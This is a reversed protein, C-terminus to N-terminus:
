QIKIPWVKKLAIEEEDDLGIKRYIDARLNYSNYKNSLGEFGM